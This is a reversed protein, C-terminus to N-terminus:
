VQGLAAKWMKESIQKGYAQELLAKVLIPLQDFIDRKVGHAVLISLLRLQLRELVGYAQADKKPLDYISHQIENGGNEESSINKVSIQNNKIDQPLIRFEITKLYTGPFKDGLKIGLLESITVQIFYATDFFRQIKATERVIKKDENTCNGSFEFINHQENLVYDWYLDIAQIIIEITRKAVEPTIEKEQRSKRIM